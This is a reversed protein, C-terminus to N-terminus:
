GALPLRQRLTPPVMQISELRVYNPNAMDLEAEDFAWTEAPIHLALIGAQLAPRIDSAASNGVVVCRAPDREGILLVLGPADKKSVVSQRHFAGALGSEEVKRRQVEPDGATWLILEYGDRRLAALAEAAGEVLPQPQEYAWNAMAWVRAREDERPRRGTKACFQDYCTVWATPYSDRGLGVQRSIKLDLAAAESRIDEAPVGFLQALFLGNRRDAEHFLHINRAITDDWDIFVHGQFM